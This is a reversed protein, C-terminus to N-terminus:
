DASYVFAAAPAPAAFPQKKSPSSALASLLIVSAALLLQHPSM